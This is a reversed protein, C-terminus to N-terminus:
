ERLHDFFAFVADPEEDTPVHMAEDIRPFIPPLHSGRPNYIHPIREHKSIQRKEPVASPNQGMKVVRINGLRPGEGPFLLVDRSIQFIRALTRTLGDLVCDRDGNAQFLALAVHGQGKLHKLSYSEVSGVYDVLSGNQCPVNVVFVVPRRFQNAFIWVGQNDREIGPDGFKIDKGVRRLM